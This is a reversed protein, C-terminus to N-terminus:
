INISDEHDPLDKKQKRFQFLHMSVTSIISECMSLIQMKNKEVQWLVYKLKKNLETVTRINCSELPRHRPWWGLTSRSPPPVMLLPGIQLFYPWQLLTVRSSSGPIQNEGRGRQKGAVMLGAAEEVMHDNSQYVKQWLGLALLSSLWPTFDRLWPDFYNNEGKLNNVEPIQQFLSFSLLVFEVSKSKVILTILKLLPNISYFSVCYYLLHLRVPSVYFFHLYVLFM